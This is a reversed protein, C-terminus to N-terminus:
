GEGGLDIWLSWPDDEALDDDVALSLQLPFKRVHETM